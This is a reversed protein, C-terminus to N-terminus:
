SLKDGLEPSPAPLPESPPWAGHGPLQSASQSFGAGQQSKWQLFSPNSGEEWAHIASTSCCGARRYFAGLLFEMCTKPTSPSLM